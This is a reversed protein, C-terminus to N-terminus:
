EDCVGYNIAYELQEISIWASSRYGMLGMTNTTFDGLPGVLSKDHQAFFELMSTQATSSTSPANTKPCLAVFTLKDSFGIM